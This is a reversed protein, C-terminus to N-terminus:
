KSRRYSVQAKRKGKGGEKEAKQMPIARDSEESRQRSPTASAGKSDQSDAAPRLRLEHELYRHFLTSYM